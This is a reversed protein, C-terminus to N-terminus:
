RKGAFQVLAQLNNLVLNDFLLNQSDEPFNGFVVVRAKLRDALADALRRGEPKNAIIFRVNRIKGVDIANEIEQFGTIDAATFSGVVNLGLWQCFEKQHASALVPEGKLGSEKVLTDCRKELEQLRLVIEKLRNEVDQKSAFGNAILAEATQVCVALYTKPCCLGSGPKISVIVPTTANKDLIREEILKQFDFKLILKCKRLRDVQAPQIDFHGPCMGPEALRLIKEDNGLIDIVASEIYSNSAAIRPSVENKSKCGSLIVISVLVAAIASKQTRNVSM